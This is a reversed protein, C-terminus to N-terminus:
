IRCILIDPDRWFDIFVDAVCAEVDQENGIGNLVKSAVSWLLRSYRNIIKELEQETM